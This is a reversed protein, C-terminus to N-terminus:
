RHNSTLLHALYNIVYLRPAFIAMTLDYTYVGMVVISIFGGLVSCVMLVGGIDDYRNDNFEKGKKWLRFCAILVLFWFGLCISDWAITWRLLEQVILPAQEAAFGAAQKAYDLVQNLAEVLQEDM